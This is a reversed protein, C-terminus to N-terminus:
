VHMRSGRMRLYGIAIHGSKMQDEHQGLLVVVVRFMTALYAGPSEASWVVEDMLGRM